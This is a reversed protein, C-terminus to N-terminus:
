GCHVEQLLDREVEERNFVTCGGSIKYGVIRGQQRWRFVTSKGVGLLEALEKARYYKKTQNESGM